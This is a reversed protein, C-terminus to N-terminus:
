HVRRARLPDLSRGCHGAHGGLEAIGVEFSLRTRLSQKEFIVAVAKPGALPRYAFPDAKM